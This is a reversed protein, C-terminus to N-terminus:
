PVDPSSGARAAVSQLLAMAWRHLSRRREDIERRLAAERRRLEAMRDAHEQESAAMQRHLLLAQTPILSRQRELGTRILALRQEAYPIQTALDRCEAELREAEQQALQVAMELALDNRADVDM